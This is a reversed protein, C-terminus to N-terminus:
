ETLQGVVTLELSEPASFKKFIYGSFSVTPVCLNIQSVKGDSSILFDRAAHSDGSAVFPTPAMM